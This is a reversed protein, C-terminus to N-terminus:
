SPTTESLCKSYLQAARNSVLVNLINSKLHKITLISHAITLILIHVSMFLYVVSRDSSVYLQVTNRNHTVHSDYWTKVNNAAFM